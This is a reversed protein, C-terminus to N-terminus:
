NLYALHGDISGRTPTWWSRFAAMQWTRPHRLVKTRLRESVPHLRTKLLFQWTRTTPSVNIISVVYSATDNFKSMDVDFHNLQNQKAKRLIIRSRDRVAHISRLYAAPDLSPDPARPINVEPISANASPITPAKSLGPSKLSSDASARHSDIGSGGNTRHSQSSSKRSFLGM